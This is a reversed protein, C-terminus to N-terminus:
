VSNRKKKSGDKEAKIRELLVSAPEDSPDQAVLRGSFAQKLISQRLSEAKQLQEEIENTASDISTFKESLLKVLIKQEELSCYPIDLEGLTAQSVTNQGASSVKNLDIYRRAKHTNFYHQAYEPLIISPDFTFRIFHDCYAMGSCDQALIMRGVLNPSGNVRIALLDNNTLSYKTEEKEDLLISRLDNKVINFNTIDALRLVPISRGTKGSRKSLGNQSAEYVSKFMLTIWGNPLANDPSSCDFRELLEEATELKDKNEERWQATLKGEFAHKLVSQRYVKLQERATKLSEIGKDLESFLEEIKAVIRNQENLPPLYLAKKAYVSIWYRKHTDNRIPNAQMLYFVFKLNVLGCSPVLIKMASSKVKFSFNVYKSATTFDDFIIAPLDEFIGHEENTYGKIFSKGATLVPTQYEDDYETSDVIFQNPQIYDLLDGYECEAWASLKENVESM